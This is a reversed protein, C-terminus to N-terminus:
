LKSTNTEQFQSRLKERDATTQSSHPLTPHSLLPFAIRSCTTCDTQMSTIPGTFLRSTFRCWVQALVCLLGRRPLLCFTTQLRGLCVSSQGQIKLAATDCGNRQCCSEEERTGSPRHKPADRRGGLAQSVTTIENPYNSLLKPKGVQNVRGRWVDRCM